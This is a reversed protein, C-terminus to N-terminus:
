FLLPFCSLMSARWMKNYTIFIINKFSFNLNSFFLINQLFFFGRRGGRKDYHLSLDVSFFLAFLFCFLVFPFFFTTQIYRCVKKVQPNHTLRLFLNNHTSRYAFTDSPHLCWEYNTPEARFCGIDFHCSDYISRERETILFHQAHM